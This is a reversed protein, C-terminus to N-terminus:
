LLELIHEVRTKKTVEGEPENDGAPDGEAESVEVAKVVSDEVVMAFRKCRGVGLVGNPGPHDMGMGVAKTFAGTPDGLFTIMSGEIKQDDAWGKM